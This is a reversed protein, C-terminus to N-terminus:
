IIESFIKKALDDLNTTDDLPKVELMVLSMAIVEKKVKKKSAKAAEAAKKAAAASEEDNDDDGFLDDFDDEKKAEVPKKEIAGLPLIATEVVKIHGAAKVVEPQSIFNNFWKTLDPVEKRFSADFSLQFLPQLYYGAVIDAITIKNGTIWTKGKM